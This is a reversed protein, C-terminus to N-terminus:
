RDSCDDTGHVVNYSFDIDAGLEFAPFLTLIAVHVSAGYICVEARQLLGNRFSLGKQIELNDTNADPTNCLVRAYCYM